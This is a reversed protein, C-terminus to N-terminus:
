DTLKGGANIWNTIIAKDAAALPGSPPMTGQDVAQSKIRGGNSVISANTEFNIGGSNAPSIHCGSSACSSTVLSKVALFKPGPTSGGPIPDPNSDDSKSCSFTMGTIAVISIIFILKRM